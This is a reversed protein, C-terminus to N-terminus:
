TVIDAVGDGNLDGVAVSVGGTFAYGYPAFARKLTKNGSRDVEYFVVEAPNGGPGQGVAYYATPRRVPRTSTETTRGLPSLGSESATMSPARGAEAVDAVACGTALGFFLGLSLVSVRCSRFM